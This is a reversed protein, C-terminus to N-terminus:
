KVHGLVAGSQAFTVSQQTASLNVPHTHPGPPAAGTAGAVTASVNGTTQIGSIEMNATLHTIVGNAIAFALRRWNGRAGDLAEQAVQKSAGSAADVAQQLPPSLLADLQVFIEKSLGSNAEATGITM